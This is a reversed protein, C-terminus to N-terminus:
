GIRLTNICKNLLNDLSTFTHNELKDFVKNAAEESMEKMMISGINLSIIKDLYIEIINSAKIINNEYKSNNKITMIIGFCKAVEVKQAASEISYAINPLFFLILFSIIIFKKNKVM